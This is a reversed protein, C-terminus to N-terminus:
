VDAFSARRLLEEAQELTPQAGIAGPQTCTFAGCASGFEVAKRLAKPNNCLPQLGGAQLLHGHNFEGPPAQVAKSDTALSVHLPCWCTAGGGYLM